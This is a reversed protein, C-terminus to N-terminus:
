CTARYEPLPQERLGEMEERLAPARRSQVEDVRGTSLHDTHRGDQFRSADALVEGAHPRQVIDGERELLALDVRQAPFVAGPLDVNM